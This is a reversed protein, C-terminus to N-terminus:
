CLRAFRVGIGLGGPVGLRCLDGRGPRGPLGAPADTTEGAFLRPLAYLRQTSGGWQRRRNPTVGGWDVGEPLSARVLALRQCEALVSGASPARPPAALPALVGERRRHRVLWRPGGV